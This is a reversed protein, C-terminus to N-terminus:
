LICEIRRKVFHRTQSKIMGFYDTQMQLGQWGENICFEECLFNEHRHLNEEVLEEKHEGM